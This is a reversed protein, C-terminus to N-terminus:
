LWKAPLDKKTERLIEFIRTREEAGLHEFGKVPAQATLIQHLRDYIAGRLMPPMHEFSPSYIMFSCRHEFIRGDLRLDKLSYGGKDTRKNATFARRFNADCSVKPLAIEERFLMYDIVKDVGETFERISRGAALKAVDTEMPDLKSDFLAQRARYTAEVLRHHMTVQHDFVLLAAIDSGPALYSDTPFFQDLKELNAFRKRDITVQGDERTAISNGMHRMKGHQGSVFWGGYRDQLPIHHGSRRYDEIGKLVRGTRDPYVSRGLSGPIFNTANGAHCGLCSRTRVFLRSRTDDLQRQFYFLPGIEPDFSAVEVRGNPMWGLYVSENFYIARPNRYSVARKQLSTKSFVLVQTDKDLKLERLLREVLPKGNEETITVEGADIKEMLLSMPDQPKRTFYGHPKLEFDNYFQASAVPAFALFLIFLPSLNLTRM